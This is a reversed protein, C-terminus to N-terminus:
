QKSDQIKLKSDAEQGSAFVDLKMGEVPAPIDSVVLREGPEPGRVVVEELTSWVVDVRHFRLRDEADAIQLTDGDKLQERGVLYVDSLSRGEISVSVYDGLLLPRREGNTLELDLPDPVEVLVQALRGGPQLDGLLRLVRGTVARRNGATVTARSADDRPGGPINIWELRDLPVLAEVHFVDSGVLTAMIGQAPVQAGVSVSTARVLANFPAKVVTRELNLEAQRVEARAAELRAEFSALQPQRLALERDMESATEELGLIEWESRAIEQRGEESKLDLLASALVAKKQILALEYETPDIRVLTQGERVVGGEVFQPHTWVVEGAVRAKLEVSLAPAVTGMAPVEVRYATPSMELVQVIQARPEPRRREPRPRNTMMYYALGAAVLLAVVSAVGVAVKERRSLTTRGSPNDM